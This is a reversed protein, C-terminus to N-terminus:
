QGIAAAQYSPKRAIILTFGPATRMRKSAIQVFGIERLQACVDDILYSTGASSALMHLAMLAPLVDPKSDQQKFVDLVILMGSPKLSNFAKTLVRHNDEKPYNHMINFYLVVDYSSGLDDSLFNGVQFKIRSSLGERAVIQRGFEAVAELEFVTAILQPHKQCFAISYGGHGGGLDLLHSQSNSQPLKIKRLIEPAILRAAERLGELHRRLLPRHDTCNLIAQYNLGPAHGKRIAEELGSWISWLDNVHELMNGIYNPSSRVLWKRSLRSLKVRGRERVLYGNACLADVLDSVGRASAGIRVSLSAPTLPEDALAEFLGLENAALIAKANMMASFSDILPIPITHAAVLLREIIGDPKAGVKM